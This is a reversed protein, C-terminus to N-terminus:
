AEKKVTELRPGKKVQDGQILLKPLMPVCEGKDNDFTGLQWLSFDQSHKNMMNEPDIRNVEDDFSRIAVGLTQVFFPTGFVESKADRVSVMILQM